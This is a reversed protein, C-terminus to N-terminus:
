LVKFDKIKVLEATCSNEDFSLKNIICYQQLQKFYYVKSLDAKILKPYPVNLSVNWIVPQNVLSGFTAYYKGIFYDMTLKSFEGIKLVSLSANAGQIDSGIVVSGTIKRMRLYFYRKSLPKYKLETSGDQAEKEYLKFIKASETKTPNIYYDEPINEVSYTFSTFLTKTADFNENDIKFYGDSHSEEQDNYKYRFYNEKAYTGFSYSEKDISILNNTWDEIQATKFREQNTKYTVIKKVNDVFPTLGLINYVDKLFDTIKLDTLEATFSVDELKSLEVSFSGGGSWDGDVTYYFLVIDNAFLPKSFIASNAFPILSGGNVSYFFDVNATGSVGSPYPVDVSVSGTVNFNYEGSELIKIGNVGGNNFSFNFVGSQQNPQGGFSYSFTDNGSFYVISTNDEPAKPYSLWWNEYDETGIFSGTFTYGAFEHIKGFLYSVLVSPVIFDINLITNNTKRHTRGNFDAFLYTYKLADNTQSAAVNVLNKNHDIESILDKMSGGITANEFKKFFEIIGSYIYIKYDNDTEKVNLWADVLFDFGDVKLLANPKQYPIKSTNSHIGLGKFIRVNKPTKPVDFSDTLSAQRDKVEAVDNVQMTHKINTKECVDLSQGEIWIETIM